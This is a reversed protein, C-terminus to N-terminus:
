FISYYKSYMVRRNMWWVEEMEAFDFTRVFTIARIRSQRLKEAILQYRQGYKEEGNIILNELIREKLSYEYFDNVAEHDLVLLEGDENEMLSTYNLYLYGKDFSTIFFNDHIYGTHNCTNIKLNFSDNRVGAKRLIKIKEINKFTYVDNARIYKIIPNNQLDLLRTLEANEYARPSGVIVVKANTITDVLESKITIENMSPTVYEFGLIMGNPTIVQVILDRTNLGHNITTNGNPIDVITAFQNIKRQASILQASLIDELLRETYTKDDSRPLVDKKHDVAVLAFNLVKFDAPLRVKGDCVELCVEKVPNFKLGLRRNANIAVKILDQEEIFGELDLGKFDLKVSDLLEEFTRYQITARM